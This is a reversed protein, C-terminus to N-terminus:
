NIKGEAFKREAELTSPIRTNANRMKQLLMDLHHVRQGSLVKQRSLLESYLPNQELMNNMSASFPCYAFLIRRAVKNLRPSGTGEFLVWIIYDRVFMEKFSNKARQLSTKIKEKAENTLDHNKRYFQIYDFYESTLSRESVDNWRAGQVRKCLEWRFEGTLRVLSTNIDEMHFISFVMRSPSNRKKGEIEQWMVGRIGVNPMLIIDPLYELHIIEKGMVDMNDFDMSERYYASYDISRIMELAKSVKATTVYSSSLDKLVDDATFVPCFSTVRGYTIKNTQPFMNTLEFKVREMPDKELTSFQAATINGRAKEKSLYDTYDEDFENRSPLKKGNYIALLWSYFPYVGSQSYDDMSVALNYLTVCNATGALEEDVYGFYLFMKVATPLAPSNVSHEFVATYLAYFEDTLKRRLRCSDDDMASRDPMARYANLNQRFSAAKDPNLGSFELITDLSGSLESLIITTRTDDTVKGKDPSSLSAVNKQFNQIRATVQAENLSPDNQFQSIMRDINAYLEGADPCDPGLRCYLSTFFEFLDNGSENFYLKKIQTQYNYQEELVTYNKRFDLSGKRLMGLSLGPEQTMFKSTEGAYIHQLALYYTQLWNDASEEGLFASVQDLGDLSRPQIRNKGCLMNYKEIDSTLNQYLGACNAESVSNQTMLTNFQRLLSLIFIRAVDPRSHMMEELAEMNNLPYALIAVEELATYNLLHIESCIECIGMVDGKNLLYSGGPYEVKVKGKTIVHLATMPQGYGYIKKGKDITNGAMETEMEAAHKPFYTFVYQTGTIQPRIKRVNEQICLTQLQSLLFQYINYM